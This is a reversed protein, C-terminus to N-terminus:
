GGASIDKLWDRVGRTWETDDGPISMRAAIDVAKLPLFGSREFARYVGDELWFISLRKLDYRWVEPIGLAAFISLKDLASGTAEIEVVLDPEDRGQFSYSSDPEAGKMLDARRQTTSGLLRVKLGLAVCASLVLEKLRESANEHEPSPSMIELVGSDFTLRPARQDAHDALIREYTDWSCSHLVVRQEPVLKLM